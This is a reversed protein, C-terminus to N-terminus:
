LGEHAPRTRGDPLLHRVECDMWIGTREHIATRVRHILERVDAATANGTNVIFNAHRHSVQAGGVTLGKLGAEEIVKGPPGFRHFLDGGSVFVSGCNPLDRPFKRRRDRLIALMRQQIAAPDDYDLELEAGVVMLPSGQFASRRRAFGCDDRKMRIIAGRSEMAEVAVISDAINKRQSGGNMIILGGLTGPIGVTHEIGTLGALGVARALRPVSVGAEARVTRGDMEVASLCRGIKVVVGRFGDDDFLLNSGEGIIISAIGHDHIYQRLRGLQAVSGPEVLADAPGGIRWTGHNRLPEAVRVEGVDLAALEKALNREPEM